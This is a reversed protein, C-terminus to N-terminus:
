GGYFKEVCEYLADCVTVLVKQNLSMMEDESFKSLVFASVDEVSPRGIGVRIRVVENSHFHRIIDRIGNHGSASGANKWKWVGFPLELDDHVVVIDKLRFGLKHSLKKLSYGSCNMGEIPKVLWLQKSNSENTFSAIMCGAKKVWGESVGRSYFMDLAMFGINHRTRDFNAGKNGLGVLIIKSESM